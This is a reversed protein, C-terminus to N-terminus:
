TTTSYKRNHPSELHEAIRAPTGEDGELLRARTGAPWGGEMRPPHGDILLCDAPEVGQRGCATAYAM